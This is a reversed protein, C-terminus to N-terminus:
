PKSVLLEVAMFWPRDTASALRGSADVPRISESVSNRVNGGISVLRGDRNEIVLDCHLQADMPVDDYRAIQIAGRRACILDGPRPAYTEPDRARFLAHTASGAPAAIIARLYDAHLMSPPFIAAPVGAAQMLWSIFAASWPKDCDEGTYTAGVARWYKAVLVSGPPDDEWTGVPDIRERVGAPGAALSSPALSGSASSSPALYITQGGFAQWEKTALTLLNDRILVPDPPPGALRSAPPAACGALLLALAFLAPLSWSSGRFGGGGVGRGGLGRDGLGKVRRAPNPILDDDLGIGPHAM